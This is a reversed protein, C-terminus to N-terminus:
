ALLASVANADVHDRGSWGGSDRPALRRMRLEVSTIQGSTLTFTTATGIISGAANYFSVSGACSAATGSSSASALNVLNVQVTEGPALGM